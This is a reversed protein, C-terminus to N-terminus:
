TLGPDAFEGALHLVAVLKGNARAQAAAEEPKGIWKIGTGYRDDVACADGAHAAAPSSAILGVVFAFLWRIRNRM